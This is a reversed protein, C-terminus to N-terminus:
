SVMAIVDTKAKYSWVIEYDEDGYPNPFVCVFTHSEGGYAVNQLSSMRLPASTIVTLVVPESEFEFGAPCFDDAQRAVCKYSGASDEKIELELKSVMDSSISKSKVSEYDLGKIM